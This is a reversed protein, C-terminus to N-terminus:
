RDGRIAALAERKKDNLFTEQKIITQPKAQPRQARKEIKELASALDAIQGTLDARVRENEEEKIQLQRNFNEAMEKLSEDSTGRPVTWKEMCEELTTYMERIANINCRLRAAETHLGEGDAWIAAQFKNLKTGQQSWLPNGKQKTTLYDGIQASGLSHNLGLAFNDTKNQNNANQANENMALADSAQQVSVNQDVDQTIKDGSAKAEPFLTLVLLLLAIGVAIRGNWINREEQPTMDQAFLLNATGSHYVM